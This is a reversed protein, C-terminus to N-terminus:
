TRYEVYHNRPYSHEITDNLEFSHKRCINIEFVTFFFMFSVLREMERKYRLNTVKIYRYPPNDILPVFKPDIYNFINKKREPM